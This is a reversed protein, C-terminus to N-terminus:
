HLLILIYDISQNNVIIVLYFEFNALNIITM